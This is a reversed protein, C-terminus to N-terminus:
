PGWRPQYDSTSNRTLNTLGRGDLRSIYIERGATFAIWGGYPSFSPGVSETDVPLQRLNRGDPGVLYVRRSGDAKRGAYLALTQGDPSWSNRGGADDLDTVQTQQTGDANMVWLQQEGSRSSAFAVRRGDPSWSPDLNDGDATLRRANAGDSDMVWIQQDAGGMTSTFVIRAGDPSVDPAYNKAGNATVQVVGSGDTNM